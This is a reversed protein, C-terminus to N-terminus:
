HHHKKTKSSKKVKKPSKEYLQRYKSIAKKVCNHNYKTTIKRAQINATKALGAITKIWEQHTSEQNPPPPITVQTHNKLKDIIPRTSWNPSNKITYITKM